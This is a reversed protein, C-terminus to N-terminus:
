GNEREEMIEFWIEREEAERAENEAVVQEWILREEEETM